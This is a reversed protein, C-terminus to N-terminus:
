RMMTGARPWGACRAGPRIGPETKHMPVARSLARQEMGPMLHWGMGASSSDREQVVAFVGRRGAALAAVTRFEHVAAERAAAPPRRPSGSWRLRHSRGRDASTATRGVRRPRRMVGTGHNM